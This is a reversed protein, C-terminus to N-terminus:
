LNHLGTLPSREEQLTSYFSVTKIQGQILLVIVEKTCRM